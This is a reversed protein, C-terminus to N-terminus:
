TSQPSSLVTPLGGSHLARWKDLGNSILQKQAAMDETEDAHFNTFGRTKSIHIKQCGPFKLKARCLAEIV